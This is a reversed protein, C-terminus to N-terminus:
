MAEEFSVQNNVRTIEDILVTPAVYNNVIEFAKSLQCRKIAKYKKVGFERRLQHQMDSYVRGRLSKDNYAPTKYGLIKTAVSKVRDMLEDCESNFLPANDKFDELDKKVGNIENKLEETKGDIMFIAQLEKSMKPIQYSGTKRIQPLVESTVWRKFKKANPLKSSLILSYLGSENIITLGRNPIELTAFQSRQIIQKDEEDVHKQIADKSNAYGLVEAVEKGIFYPEDNILIGRVQGFEDNKFIQIEKSM